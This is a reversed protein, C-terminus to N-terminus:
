FPIDDDFNPMEPEPEAAKQAQAMGANHVEEKNQFSLSQYRVGNKSTKTWASIWYEVGNIECSGRMHPQSDKTKKENQFLAGSMNNDYDSM